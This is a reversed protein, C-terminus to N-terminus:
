DHGANAFIQRRDFSVCRSNDGFVFAANFIETEHTLKALHPSARCLFIDNKSDKICHGTESAIPSTGILSSRSLCSDARVYFFGQKFGRNVRTKEYDQERSNV